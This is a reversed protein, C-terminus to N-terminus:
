VGEVTTGRLYVIPFDRNWEAGDYLYRPASTGADLEGASDMM